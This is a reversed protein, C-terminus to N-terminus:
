SMMRDVSGASRERAPGIVPSPVVIVPVDCRRMLAEATSGVFLRELSGRRHTGVVVADINAHRAANVIGTATDTTEEVEVDITIGADRAHEAFADLAAYASARMDEVLMRPDFVLDGAPLAVSQTDVVSCGRVVLDVDRALAIAVDAADLSREAHDIGVVIRRLPRVTMKERTVVVPVISRRVVDEAVSGLLAHSVGTRGHTGMVIATAKWRKASDLIAAAAGSAVFELTVSIHESAVRSRLNRYVEVRDAALSALLPGRDLEPSDARTELRIAAPVADISAHVAIVVGHFQTALALAHQLATVSAPTDDYGVVIRAFPNLLLM